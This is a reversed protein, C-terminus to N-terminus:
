WWRGLFSVCVARVPSIVDHTAASPTELFRPIMLWVGYTSGLFSHRAAGMVRRTHKRTHTNHTHTHARTCDKTTRLQPYASPFLLSDGTVWLAGRRAATGRGGVVVVVVGVILRSSLRLELKADSKQM